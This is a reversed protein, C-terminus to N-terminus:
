LMAHMQNVGNYIKEVEEDRGFALTQFQLDTDTPVASVLQLARGPQKRRVMCCAPFGSCQRHLWVPLPKRTAAIHYPQRNPLKALVGM